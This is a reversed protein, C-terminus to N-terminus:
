YRMINYTEDSAFIEKQCIYIYIDTGLAHKNYKIDNAISFWM